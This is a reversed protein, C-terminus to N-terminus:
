EAKINVSSGEPSPVAAADGDFLANQRPDAEPEGTGAELKKLKTVMELVMERTAPALSDFKPDSTLTALTSYMVPAERKVANQFKRVEPSTLDKATLRVKKPAATDDGDADGGAQAAPAEAGGTKRALAAKLVDLAKGGHEKITEIAFTPKIVDDVVMLQLEVPSAALQLLSDVWETSFNTLKSIEEIDTGDDLMRKCVISAEYANYPAAENETILLANLQTPTTTKAPHVVLTVHTIQKDEPLESNALDIAERRTYGATYFVVDEGTEPDRSMYGAMPKHAMYGHKKLSDAYRRVRALYAANRVRVNFGEIPRLREIPFRWLDNSTAKNAKMGEKLNGPTLELTFQQALQEMNYTEAMTKKRTM